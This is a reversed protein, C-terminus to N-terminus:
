QCESLTDLASVAFDSRPLSLRGPLTVFTNTEAEYTMVDGAYNQNEDLGGIMILPQESTSLYGGFQFGRTLAPGEVWESNEVSLDFVETTKYNEYGDGGAIMVSIKNHDMPDIITACAAGWRDKMLPPLKTFIFEPSSTDVIYAMKTHYYSGGIFVHTENIVSTCHGEMPEPLNTSMDFDSDKDMKIESSSITYSGNYGGIIWYRKDALIVSSASYRSKILSNSEIWSSNMYAYCNKTYGENSDVHGGCFLQGASSPLAIRSPYNPPKTCTNISSFPDLIEVDSLVVGNTGGVVLIKLSSQSNILVEDQIDAKLPAVYYFVILVIFFKVNLNNQRNM